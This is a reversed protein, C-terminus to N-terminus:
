SGAPLRGLARYLAALATAQDFRVRVLTTEATTMQVQADIMEIIDAAGAEYRGTALRLNEAFAERAKESAALQEAADLMAQEAQEVLLRIQRRRDGLAFEAAAVLAEAEATQQRTLYGNFLPVNLQAGVSWARDVPLEDTGSWGLNGSATLSPNDGRHAALRNSRAAALQLRLAGLDPHKEDAERLWDEITGAAEVMEPAGALEFDVPGDIGMRNLLILRATRVEHEVGAADARAQYLNAEARVVDIRAKLGADFFAQAQRQLAERQRLTERRVSQLNVARLVNFYAVEAAFVVEVRSSRASQESAAALDGARALSAGTRGFDTLLQSVTGKVTTATNRVQDGSTASPIEVWSWGASAAAQPLRVSAAQERRAVAARTGADAQGISPHNAIATAIVDGLSWRVAAAPPSAPAPDVQAQVKGVTLSCFVAAFAAALRWSGTNTRM